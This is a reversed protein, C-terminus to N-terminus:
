TVCASPCVYLCISLCASPFVPPYLCVLMYENIGAKTESDVELYQSGSAPITLCVCVCVCVCMNVKNGALLYVSNTEPDVEMDKAIGANTDYSVTVNM